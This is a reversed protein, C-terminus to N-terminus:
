AARPTQGQHRCVEGPRAWLHRRQDEEAQGRTQLLFAAQAQGLLHHEGEGDPDGDDRWGPCCFLCVWVQVHTWIWLISCTLSSFMRPLLISCNVTSCMRLLLIPLSLSSCSDLAVSYFLDSQLVDQAVSYVFEFKFMPGSGCFLVLWVPSCGPCCFLCVWVQVHTWLWLISCNVTFCM